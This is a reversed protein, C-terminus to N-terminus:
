VVVEVELTWLVIGSPSPLFFVICHFRPRHPFHTVCCVVPAAGLGPDSDSLVDLRLRQALFVPTVVRHNSAQRADRKLCGHAEALSDSRKEYVLVQAIQYALHARVKSLM